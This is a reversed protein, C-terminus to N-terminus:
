FQSLSKMLGAPIAAGSNTTEELVALDMGTIKGAEFASQAKLMIQETTLQGEQFANSGGGNLNNLSKQMDNISNGRDAITLVSKRGGPLSSLQTVQTQLSKIMDDRQGIIEIMTGMAEIVQDLKSTDNSELTALRAPLAKMFETVDFGKQEVNNEDVFVFSKGMFEPNDNEKGQGEGKGKNKEAELRAKEEAAAKEEDSLEVAQKGADEQGFDAGSMSKKMDNGTEQSAKIGALLLQFKENGVQQTMTM